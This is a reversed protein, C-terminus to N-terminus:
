QPAKPTTPAAAPKDAGAKPTMPSAGPKIVEKGQEFASFEDISGSIPTDGKLEVYKDAGSVARKRAPIVEQTARMQ